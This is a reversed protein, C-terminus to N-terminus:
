HSASPPLGVDLRESMYADTSRELAMPWRGGISELLARALPLYEAATALHSALIANRSPSARPIEEVAEGSVALPDVVRTM